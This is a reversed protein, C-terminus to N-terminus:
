SVWSIAWKPISSLWQAESGDLICIFVNIWTILTTELEEIAITKNIGVSLPSFLYLKRTHMDIWKYKYLHNFTLIRYVNETSHLYLLEVCQSENIVFATSFVLFMWRWVLWANITLKDNQVTNETYHTANNNRLSIPKFSQPLIFHSLFAVCLNLWCHRFIHANQQRWKM